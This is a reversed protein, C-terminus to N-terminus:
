NEIPFTIKFETGEKGNIELKGSIQETLTSVLQLGLSNTENIKFDDPLGVGNDKIILECDNGNRHLIATIIKEKDGFNMKPPFAYKFANTIIENIILGLSVGIDINIDVENIDLNLKINSDDLKYSYFLKNVLEMIYSSLNIRSLDESQYLKEHILAMSKIRNQSELLVEILRPNKVTVAQLNILSIIIQLNNKVRHHIEKLLVEKEKLNEKLIEEFEKRFTIDVCSGIFGIFRGETSYRPVGNNIVWKYEGNYNRLRLELSFEKQENFYSNFLKIFTDKDEPHIGEMWGQGIEDEVKKGRFELWIKNFYVAEKNIDCMWILVPANDALMRFKLESELLDKENQIRETIDRLIVTYFKQNNSVIQSISAEIPFEQGNNRVGKVTGLSGMKRSTTGTKGFETIQTSHVGRYSSPIFRDLPKGLVEASKVGFMKEAASNFLVINQISDITIIADMASDVIGALRIRNQELAEEVKKDKLFSSIIVWIVIIGIARNFIIFHLTLMIPSYITGIIIQITITSALIIIDERNYNRSVYLLSFMYFIWISYGAPTILDIILIIFNIVYIFILTIKKEQLFSM